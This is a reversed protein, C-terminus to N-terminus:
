GHLWQATKGEGLLGGRVQALTQAPPRQRSVSGPTTRSAASSSTEVQGASNMGPPLM